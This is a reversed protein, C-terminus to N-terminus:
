KPYATPSTIPISALSESLSEELGDLIQPSISTLQWDNDEFIWSELDEIISVLQLTRDVIFPMSKTMKAMNSM